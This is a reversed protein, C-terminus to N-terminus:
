FILILSVADDILATKKRNAKYGARHVPPIVKNRNVSYKEKGEPDKKDDV